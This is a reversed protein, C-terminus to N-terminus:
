FWSVQGPRISELNQIVMDLRALGVVIEGKLRRM